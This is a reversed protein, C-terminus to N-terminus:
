AAPLPQLFFQDRLFSRELLRVLADGQEFLVHLIHLFQEFELALGPHLQLLLGGLGPRALGGLGGLRRLRRFGFSNRGFGSRGFGYRWFCCCWFDRVLDDRRRRLRAQDVFNEAVFQGEVAAASEQQEQKGTIAIVCPPALLAQLHHFAAYDTSGAQRGVGHEARGAAGLDIGARAFDVTIDAGAASRRRDVGLFDIGDGLGVDIHRIAAIRLGLLNELLCQGLIRRTLRNPDFQQFDVGVPLICLCELCHRSFDMGRGVAPAGIPFLGKRQACLEIRFIREIAARSFRASNMSDGVGLRNGSGFGRGIQYQARAARRFRGRAQIKIQPKTFRLSADRRLRLGFRCAAGLLSGIDSGIETEIQVQAALLFFGPGSRHFWM